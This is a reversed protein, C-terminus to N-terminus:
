NRAKDARSSDAEEDVLRDLEEAEVLHERV